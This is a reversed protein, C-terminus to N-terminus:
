FGPECSLGGLEVEATARFTGGINGLDDGVSEGLSVEAFAFFFEDTENEGADCLACGNGLTKM